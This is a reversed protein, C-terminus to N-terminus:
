DGQAAKGLAGSTELAGSCSSGQGATCGYCHEGVLIPSGDLKKDLLDRIHLRGSENAILNSDLHTPLDLMQNFDCDYVYGQWDISLMSRCMLGALNDASFNDRLLTMYQDYKGQALLTAGFRKIPMNTITLLNSFQIGWEAGLKDRYDQELSKQPPPLFAGNPNYVLDLILDDNIGYGLSNLRQLGRVSSEFVGKGRQERVNQESYCPLSAVVQVRQQALFEALDEQGPEELITLNCRDIIQLGHQTGWRVLDRFHDNLEPAGGTLDLVNPELADVLRKLDDVVEATMMETRSPGANVHCHVCSLNCKYGLNVQLTTVTSRRIKPFDTKLLLERTDRM